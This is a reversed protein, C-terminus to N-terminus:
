RSQSVQDQFIASLHRSAAHVQSPTYGYFTKFEHIFHSQDFYRYRDVVAQWDSIAAERIQRYAKNFRVIRSYTKPTLGTKYKFHAELSSKSMGIETYLRHIPITGSRKMIQQCVTEVRKTTLKDNRRWQKLFWGNLLDIIAPINGGSDEIQRLLQDRDGDLLDQVPFSDGTLESQDFGLLRFAGTPTFVVCLEEPHTILMRRYRALQGVFHFRNPYIVGNHMDRFCAQENLSFVMISSGVPYIDFVATNGETVPKFYVYAEICSRLLPHPLYAASAM